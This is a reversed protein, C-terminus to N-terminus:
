RDGGPLPARSPVDTASPSHSRPQQQASVVGPKALDTETEDFTYVQVGRPRQYRLASEPRGYELDTETKDFNHQLHSRPDTAGDSLPRGQLSGDQSNSSAQTRERSGTCAGCGLITLLLWAGLYHQRTPFSM